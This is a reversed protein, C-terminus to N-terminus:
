VTSKARRRFAAVNDRSSCTAGCHRRSRNRSTDVYVDECDDSSCSGFRDVGHEIVVSALGMATVVALWQAASTGLSEFHLHPAGSHVSLRPRARSRELIDNIGISAEAADSALFVNRLDERLRRVDRLDKPEPPSAAGEWLEANEAMFRQLDEFSALGDIGGISRQDTNVLDAALSVPEDTYHSFDM